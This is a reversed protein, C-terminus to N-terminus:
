GNENENQLKSKQKKELLGVASSFFKRREQTTESKSDWASDFKNKLIFFKESEWTIHGM